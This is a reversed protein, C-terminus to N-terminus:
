NGRPWVMLEFLIDWWSGDLKYPTPPLGAQLREIVDAVGICWRTFTNYKIRRFAFDMESAPALVHLHLHDVSNFPPIHFCLVYDKQRYAEPFKRAILDHAVDQLQLILELGDTHDHDKDNAVHQISPIYRRPIVLGHFPAKPRHDEFAFVDSDPENMLIVTDPIEGRLIRGFVTPNSSYDNMTAAASASTGQNSNCAATTSAPRVFIEKVATSKSSPVLGFVCIIVILINLVIALPLLNTM